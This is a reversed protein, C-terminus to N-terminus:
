QSVPNASSDPVTGDPGKLLRVAVLGYAFLMALVALYEYSRSHSRGRDTKEWYDQLVNNLREASLRKGEPMTLNKRTLRDALIPYTRAPTKIWLNATLEASGVAALVLLVVGIKKWDMPLCLIILPMCYVIYREHVGTPLMFTSWLWLGTYAVVGQFPKSRFSRFLLIGFVIGAFAIGARGLLIASPSANITALTMRPSESVLIALHWPNFASLSMEKYMSFNEIYSHLFWDWGNSLTWPSSLLLFSSAFAVGGTILIGPVKKLGTVGNGAAMAFASFVLVPGLLLGQPKLLCAIAAVIGASVWKKKCCLYVCWLAPAMFWSDTQGWFSTDLILPPFLWCLVALLLAASQSWLLSGLAFVGAAAIMDAAIVAFSMAMRSTYTNAKPSSDFREWLAAQLYFLTIGLPPYNAIRPPIRTFDAFEGTSRNFMQGTVPPNSSVPHSYVELLGHRAAAMGMGINDFHDLAYGWRIGAMPLSARVTLGLIILIVLVPVTKGLHPSKDPDCGKPSEESGEAQNLPRSARSDSRKKAKGM